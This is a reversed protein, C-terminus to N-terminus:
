KGIMVEAHNGCSTPNLSFLRRYQKDGTNTILMITIMIPAMKTNHIFNHENDIIMM